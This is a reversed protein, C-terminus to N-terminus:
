QNHIVVLQHDVGQSGPETAGSRVQHDRGTEVNDGLRVLM